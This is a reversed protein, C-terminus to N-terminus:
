RGARAPHEVDGNPLRRAWLDLDHAVWLLHVAGFGSFMPLVIAGLKALALLAVATEPLMPLFVGVRDGPRVGLARLAAAARHTEALLDSWTLRRAGHVIALRQPYVAATREIFALPTMADHNAACRPLDRDYISTM